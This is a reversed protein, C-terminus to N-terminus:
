IWKLGVGFIMIALLDVGLITGVMILKNKIKEMDYVIFSAIMFPMYGILIILWVNPFNWWGYDWVLAGAANLLVEIFVCLLSNMVVFFWRNPIGLIKMKKDAPLMKLLAIGLVAFMLTIEINLGIFIIFASGRPATWPATFDTFHFVLANWIENFLDMGWFALGGLAMSWDRKQIEVAYIYIVIVFIPVVHWQFNSTDRLMRMAQDAAETRM